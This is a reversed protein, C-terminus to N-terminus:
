SKENYHNKIFLYCAMFISEIKSDMKVWGGVLENTSDSYIEVRRRCIKVQFGMSEIKDVVPMIWNYSYSYKLANTKYRYQGDMLEGYLVVNKTKPSLVAGMFLAIPENFESQRM